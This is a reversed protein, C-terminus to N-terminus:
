GDDLWDWQERYLSILLNVLKLTQFSQARVYTVQQHWIIHNLSTIM